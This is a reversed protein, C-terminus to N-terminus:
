NKLTMKRVGFIYAQEMHKATLPAVFASYLLGFMGNLLFPVSVTLNYEAQGLANKQQQESTEIRHVSLKVIDNTSCLMNHISYFTHQGGGIVHSLSVVVAFHSSPELKCPVVVLRWLPEQPRNSLKLSVAAKAMQEVPTHRHVPSDLMHFFPNFSTEDVNEHYSLYVGDRTKVLRGALWPNKKLIQLTRDKLIAAAQNHDGHFWTITSIPTDRRLYVINELPLLLKVLVLDGGDEIVRKRKRIGIFFVVAASILSASLLLHKTTSSM